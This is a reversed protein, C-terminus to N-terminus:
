LRSDSHHWTRHKEAVWEIGDSEEIEWNDAVDDPIEVVKLEAHPGNATAGLEEIVRILHPDAREVGFSVYKTQSYTNYLAQAAPSLSFGGYCVNIAVKIPM